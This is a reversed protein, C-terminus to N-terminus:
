SIRSEPPAVIEIKGDALREFHKVNWTVLQNARHRIAAVLILADHIVGGRGNHAVCLDIATLYDQRTVDIVSFLTLINQQILDRASLPRIEPQLPARTLVSYLEALTHSIVGAKGDRRQLQHIYKISESHHPHAEYLSAILISTDSVQM